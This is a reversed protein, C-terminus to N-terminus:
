SVDGTQKNMFIAFSIEQNAVKLIFDDFERIKWSIETAYITTSLWADEYECVKDGYHEVVRERGYWSLPACSPFYANWSNVFM